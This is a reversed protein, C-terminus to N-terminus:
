SRRTSCATYECLRPSIRSYQEGIRASLRGFTIFFAGILPTPSIILM